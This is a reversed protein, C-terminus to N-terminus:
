AHSTLLIILFFCFRKVLCFLTLLRHYDAHWHVLSIYCHLVFFVVDLAGFWSSWDYWHWLMIDLCVYFFSEIHLWSVPVRQDVWWIGQKSWRLNLSSGRVWGWRLRWKTSGANRSLANGVWHHMCDTSAKCHHFRLANNPLWGDKHFTRLLSVWDKFNSRNWGWFSSYWCHIIPVVDRQSPRQGGINSISDRKVWIYVSAVKPCQWWAIRSM